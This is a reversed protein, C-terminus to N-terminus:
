HPCALEDCKQDQQHCMNHRIVFGVFSIEAEALCQDSPTDDECVSCAYRKQHSGNASKLWFDYHRVTGKSITVVDCNPDTDCTESLFPNSGHQLEIHQGPGLSELLKQEFLSWDDNKNM